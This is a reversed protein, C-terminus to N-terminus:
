FDEHHADMTADISVYKQPNALLGHYAGPGSLFSGEHAAGRKSSGSGFSADLKRQVEIALPLTQDLGAYRKEVVHQMLEATM